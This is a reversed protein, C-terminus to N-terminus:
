KLEKYRYIRYGSGQTFGDPAWGRALVQDTIIAMTIGSADLLSDPMMLQFGTPKGQFTNVLTVAEQVSSVPKMEM